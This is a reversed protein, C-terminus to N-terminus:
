ESPASMLERPIADKLTVFFRSASPPDGIFEREIADNPM